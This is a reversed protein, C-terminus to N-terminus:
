ASRSGGMEKSKGPENSTSDGEGSESPKEETKEEESGDGVLERDGEGLARVSEKSQSSVKLPPGGSPEPGGPGLMKEASTDSEVLVPSQSSSGSAQHHVRPNGLLGEM